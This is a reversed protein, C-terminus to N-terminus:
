RVHRGWPTVTRAGQVAGHLRAREADDLPRYLEYLARGEDTKMAEERLADHEAPSLRGAALKRWREDQNRDLDPDLQAHGEPPETHSM